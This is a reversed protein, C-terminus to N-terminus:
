RPSPPTESTFCGHAECGSNCVLLNRPRIENKTRATSENQAHVLAAVLNDVGTCALVIKADPCKGFAGVLQRDLLPEFAFCDHDRERAGVLFPDFGDAGVLEGVLRRRVLKLRAEFCRQEFEAPREDTMKGLAPHSRVPPPVDARAIPPPPPGVAREDEFLTPIIMVWSSTPDFSAPEQSPPTRTPSHARPPRAAEAAQRRWWRNGALPGCSEPPATGRSGCRRAGIRRGTVPRM